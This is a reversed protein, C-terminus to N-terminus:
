IGAVIRMGDTSFWQKLQNDPIKNGNVPGLHFFFSVAPAFFNESAIELLWNFLLYFKNSEIPIQYPNAILTGMDFQQCNLNWAM